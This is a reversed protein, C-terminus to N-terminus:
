KKYLMMFQERTILVERPKSGEAQSIIGRAAMEDILRGAKPYGVRLRRQLMSISAQGSEVAMEIAQELLEDVEEDPGGSESEAEPQNNLHEIVEENYETEHRDKIFEVIDHLEEDSVWAGQVRQPKNTGSPAFLMDGRGLLKEAGGFDLITRSDVQSAVNFAIRSPINAKIVGTIVNVSPRQTAIVLHIGAARALQALRCISDEVEGPTVMMLDALEDIIIVIQPMPKEEAGCSLNYGKLDRAGREAFKRYRETMEAVAWSLAGAAKKPDTVVPVLLHPIGNYGNLEVVKPDIMILRVEEPTARYLISCIICNICVSKGSGTAGAILVHPMKALDAIIYKGANDKGLAVALRSPHARATESELVDRLPVIEVNDNPVEVGVAAKGPIPAEIRVTYAELNLAIDDALATIRSVKIGPAPSLEFRTVAPGHAIANVTATIGFSRLTEELRLKKELDGRRMDGTNIPKGRALLDVPPYQYNTFDGAFLDDKQPTILPSGDMRFPIESPEGMVPKPARPKRKPPAPAPNPDPDFPPADDESGGSTTEVSWAYEPLEFTNEDAGPIVPPVTPAEKPVEAVENLAEAKKKRRLHAPIEYIESKGSKGNPPPAAVPTITEIFLSDDRADPRTSRRVEIRDANLAAREARHKKYDDYSERVFDSAKMGITRLSIIRLMTLGAVMLVILLILGGWVDFALYLPVAILAGLAGGGLGLQYSQAVFNAFNRIMTRQITEEMAFLQFASFIMLFMAAILAIRGVNKQFKGSFIVLIGAWIMILPLLFNLEGGLGRMLATMGNAAGSVALFFGWVGFGALLVGLVEGMRSGKEIPPPPPSKANTSKKKQPPAACKAAM